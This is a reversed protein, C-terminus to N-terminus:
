RLRLICRRWPGTRRDLTPKYQVDSTQFNVLGPHFNAMSGENVIQIQVHGGYGAEYEAFFNNATWTYDSADWHEESTIDVVPVIPCRQVWVIGKRRASFRGSLCRIRGRQHKCPAVYVGCKAERVKEEYASLREDMEAPSQLLIPIRLEWTCVKLRRITM